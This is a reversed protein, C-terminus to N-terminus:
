RAPSLEVARFPDKLDPVVELSFGDARERVLGQDPGYLLVAIAKPDPRALFADVASSKVQM